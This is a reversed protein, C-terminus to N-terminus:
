RSTYPLPWGSGCDFTWDFMVNVPLLLKSRGVVRAPSFRM